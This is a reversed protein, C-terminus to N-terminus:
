CNAFCILLLYVILVAWVANKNGGGGSAQNYLSMM